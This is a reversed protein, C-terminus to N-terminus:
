RAMIDTKVFATTYARHYDHGRPTMRAQSPALRFTEHENWTALRSCPLMWLYILWCSMTREYSQSAM